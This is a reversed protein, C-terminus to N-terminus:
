TQKSTALNGSYHKNEQKECEDTCNLPDCSQLSLSSVALVTAATYLDAMAALFSLVGLRLAELSRSTELCTTSERLANSKRVGEPGASIQFFLYKM